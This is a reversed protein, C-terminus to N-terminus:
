IGKRLQKRCEKYDPIGQAVLDWFKKSHNMEKLHCVEHVVLYDALHDPLRAIKYHFSLTGRKSCSGWRTKQNRISVSSYTFGYFSAWHEVKQRAVDRATKKYALYEKTAGQLSVRVRIRRRQVRIRFWSLM